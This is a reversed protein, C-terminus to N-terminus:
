AKKPKKPDFVGSFISSFSLSLKISIFDIVEAAVFGITVRISTIVPTQREFPPFGPLAFSIQGVRTAM